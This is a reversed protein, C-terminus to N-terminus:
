WGFVRRCLAVRWCCGSSDRKVVVTNTGIAAPEAELNFAERDEKSSILSYARDYFTDRDGVTRRVERKIPFYDNVAGLMTRRNTSRKDDLGGPQNLDRVQFGGTAPDAGWASRLM